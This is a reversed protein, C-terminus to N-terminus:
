IHHHTQTSLFIRTIHLSKFHHGERHKYCEPTHTHILLFYFIFLLNFIHHFTASGNLPQDSYKITKIKNNQQSQPDGCCCSAARDFFKKKKNQNRNQADCILM